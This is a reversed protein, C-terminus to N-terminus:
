KKDFRFLFLFLCDYFQLTIKPKLCVENRNEIDNIQLDMFIFQRQFHKSLEDLIAAVICMLSFVNKFLEYYRKSYSLKVNVLCWDSVWRWLQRILDSHMIIEQRQNYVSRNGDYRTQKLGIKRSQYATKIIQHQMMKRQCATKIIQSGIMTSQYQIM